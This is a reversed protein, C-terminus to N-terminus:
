DIEKFKIGRAEWFEKHERNVREITAQRLNEKLVDAIQQRMYRQCNKRVSQTPQLCSIINAGLNKWWLNKQSSLNLGYLVYNAFHECNHLSINYKAATTFIKIRESEQQTIRVKGKLELGKYEWGISNNLNNNESLFYHEALGLPIKIKCVNLVSEKIIEITM